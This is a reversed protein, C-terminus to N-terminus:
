LKLINTFLYNIKLVNNIGLIKGLLNTLLVATVVIVIGLISQTLQNKAQEIKKEDGNASIFTYGAFIFSLTFYIVAVITLIGIAGSIFKELINLENGPTSLVGVGEIIGLSTQAM